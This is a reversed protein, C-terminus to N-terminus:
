DELVFFGMAMLMQKERANAVTDRYHRILHPFVGFIVLFIFAFIATLGFLAVLIPILPSKVPIFQYSKGLFM